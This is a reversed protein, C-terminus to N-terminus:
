NKQLQVMGDLYLKIIEKSHIQMSKVTQEGAIYRNMHKLIKQPEDLVKRLMDAIQDASPEFVFGSNGESILEKAGVRSSAFVPVGYSLSELVVLAFTEPWISPVVVVDTRNMINELEDYSYHDYSVTFDNVKKKGDFIQLVFNRYGEDYLTQLAEQLIYYGKQPNVQNLFSIRVRDGKISRETMHKKIERNTISIIRSYEPTFYKLYINKAVSSNFHVADIKRFMSVYYERLTRYEAGCVPDIQEDIVEKQNQVFFERRQRKRLWKLVASDKCKRYFGSQLLCIKGLSLATKNCSSCYNCDGECIDSNRFFNVKFCLGYYDHTTYVKLIGLSEAADLFERHIGMFTHFHIVDPKVKKLFECYIGIDVSEMYARINNIGEDLAVPLPHLLEYSMIGDKRKQERFKPPKRKIGMRGPWLMSVEHGSKRQDYMLDECYKTMGGSRYPSFGLAYHLIRM